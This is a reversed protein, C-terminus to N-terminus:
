PLKFQIAMALKAKVNVGLNQGPTFKTKKVARIAEEDCGNGLGKVIKVDDVDGSQNILILCYVKGETKSKIASEPYVIKKMIADNGGIAAPAKEIGIEYEEDGPYLSNGKANIVLLLFLFVVSLLSNITKNNVLTKM